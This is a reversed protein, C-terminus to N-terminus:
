PTLLCFVLTSIEQTVAVVGSIFILSSHSLFGREVGMIAFIALGEVANVCCTLSARLAKLSHSM